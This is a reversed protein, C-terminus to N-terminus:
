SEYRAIAHSAFDVQLSFFMFDLDYDEFVVHVAIQDRLAATVQDIGGITCGDDGEEILEICRVTVTAPYIESAGLASEIVALVADPSDTDWTHLTAGFRAGERVADDMTAKVDFARAVSWVGFVLLLLIPALLAIEVLPAAGRDSETTHTGWRLREM